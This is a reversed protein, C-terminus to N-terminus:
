CCCFSVAWWLSGAGMSSLGGAYAFIGQFESHPALWCFGKGRLLTDFPKEKKEMTHHFVDYLKAPHFPRRSKYTFSHIGYELTEPVHEGIRAEKLWEEHEEAKSLTFLSTGLIRSPDIKGRSSEVILADPNFKTLLARVQFIDNKSMLDIKNLVIVNAFEVQDCLLHAVTRVDEADNHWGRQKLSELTQLENIFTSGDVVTVMTDLTAVDSLSAGDDDKFTFTEAVPMPESIGSSEILLYDFQQMESLKKVETLLDERLTCCICGNSLEVLTEEGKQLSTGKQLLSADINVAGMDNVILAVKLGDRNQLIHTLLTTKGAGLFGSLVTVPLTKTVHKEKDNASEAAALELELEKTSIFKQKHGNTLEQGFIGGWKNPVANTTSALQLAYAVSTLYQITALDNSRELVKIAHPFSYWDYLDEFDEDPDEPEDVNDDLSDAAASPPPNNAYMIYVDVVKNEGNPRYLRMPLMHPLVM